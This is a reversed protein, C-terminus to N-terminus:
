GASNKSTLLKTEAVAEGPNNVANGRVVTITFNFNQFRLVEPLKFKIIKFKV